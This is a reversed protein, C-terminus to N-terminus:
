KLNQIDFNFISINRIKYMLISSRALAMIGEKKSPSQHRYAVTSLPFACKQLQLAAWKTCSLFDIFTKTQGNETLWSIYYSKPRFYYYYFFEKWETTPRQPIKTLLFLLLDAASAIVVGACEESILQPLRILYTVVM